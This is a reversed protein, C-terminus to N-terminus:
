RNIWKTVERFITEYAEDETTFGTNIILDPTGVDFGDSIGTFNEVEGTLAKAYLGKPDRNMLTGLDCELYIEYYLDKFVARNLRRMDEYPTISSVVINHGQLCLQNLRGRLRDQHRRRGRPTFDKEAGLFNRVVDGDVLLYGLSQALRNGLTTKGAGSMGYLWIVKGVM